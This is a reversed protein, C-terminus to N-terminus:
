VTEFETSSPFIPREGREGGRVGSETWPVTEGRGRWGARMEDGGQTCAHSPREVSARHIFVSRVGGTRGGLIMEVVDSPGIGFVSYEDWSNLSALRRVCCGLVGWFIMFAGRRAVVDIDTTSSTLRAHDTDTASACVVVVSLEVDAGAGAIHEHEGM